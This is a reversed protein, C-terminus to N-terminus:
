LMSSLFTVGVGIAIAIMPVVVYTVLFKKRQKRQAIEEPTLYVIIAGM